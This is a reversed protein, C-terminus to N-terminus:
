NIIYCLFTDNNIEIIVTPLGSIVRINFQFGNLKFQTVIYKFILLNQFFINLVLYRNM